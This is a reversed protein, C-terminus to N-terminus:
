PNPIPCRAPILTRIARIRPLVSTTSTTRRWPRRPTDFSRRWIKVQDEGYKKATEAKNLGTLGGYHRENLRWTRCTPIKEQGTVLLVSRLTDQARKLLSTHAIDFKLKADKIAQGAACAEEKGKESLKADFWGCFLNKQNWESEGHRVMVVVFKKTESKECFTRQPTLMRPTMMLQSGYYIKLSGAM